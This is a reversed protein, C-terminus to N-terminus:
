RGGMGPMFIGGGTQAQRESISVARGILARYNEPTNIVLLGPEVGPGSVATYLDNGREAKIQLESLLYKGDKQETAVLLCDAGAGNVYVADYPVTLVAKQESVIFDLRVSMGIKLGETPPNVAVETKFLADALTDTQGLSNKAATPAIKSIRGSFQRDGTADSKITAAMGPSVTAIDYEKVATTVVLNAIDEIVFLLGSGGAGVEAYVATVTGCVPATIRTDALDARLQRLSVQGGAQNAGAKAGALANAYAQLQDQAGQRAATLAALATLYNEYAREAATAYDALANDVGTLAAKYQSKATDYAADALDYARRASSLQAAATQLAALESNMAAISAELTSIQSDYGSVDASPDAALAAARANQAAALENQAETIAARQAGAKKDAAQAAEYAEQMAARNSKASNLAQQQALLTTNEDKDVGAQYREYTEQATVYANYAATVQSEANLIGSNLGHELGYQFAQYNDEASKIQQSGSGGAVSLATEQSEIQRAIKEGDLEALLDGEQVQDGVEVHVAKVPYALSSYVSMSVASEVIGTASITDSIDGQELVTIDYFSLGSQAAKKLMGSIAIILILLLLIAGGIILWKKKLKNKGLPNKVM